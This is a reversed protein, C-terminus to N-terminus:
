NKDRVMALEANHEVESCRKEWENKIVRMDNKMLAIIKECNMKSEELEEKLAVVDKTLNENLAQLDMIQAMQEEIKVKYKGKMEEMMEVSAKQENEIIQKVQTPLSEYKSIIEDKEKTSAEIEKQLSQVFEESQKLKNRLEEIQSQNAKTSTQAMTSSKLLNANEEKLENYAREIDGYADRIKEFDEKMEDIIADKQAINQSYQEREHTIADKQQSYQALNNVLKQKENLLQNKQDTEQQLADGMDALTNQFKSAEEEFAQRIRQNEQELAQLETKLYANVKNLKEIEVEKESNLSDDIIENIRQQRFNDSVHSLKMTQIVQDNEVLDYTARVQKEINNIRCFFILFFKM